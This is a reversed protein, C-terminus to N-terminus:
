LTVMVGDHGGQRRRSLRWSMKCSSSSRNPRAKRRALSRMHRARPKVPWRRRMVESSPLRAPPRATSSTRAPRRSRAVSRLQLVLNTVKDKSRCRRPYSSPSQKGGINIGDVLKDSVARDVQKVADKATETATKQLIISSSFAARPVTSVAFTRPVTALRRVATETLFSM